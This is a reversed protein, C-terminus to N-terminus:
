PKYVLGYEEKLTMYLTMYIAIVSKSLGANLVTLVEFLEQADQADPKYQYSRSLMEVFDKAVNSGDINFIHPDSEIDKQQAKFYLAFSSMFFKVLEEEYPEGDPNRLDKIGDDVGKRLDNNVTDPAQCIQIAYFLYAAVYVALYQLEAAFPNSRAKSILGNSRCEKKKLEEISNKAM